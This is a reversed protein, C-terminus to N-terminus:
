YSEERIVYQQFAQMPSGCTDHKQHHGACDLLCSMSQLAGPFRAIHLDGAIGAMIRAARERIEREDLTWSTPRSLMTLLNQISHRSSLMHRRVSRTKKVVFTDLMRVGTLHDDHYGSELLINACKSTTEQLYGTPRMGHVSEMVKVMVLRRLLFWSYFGVGHILALSYFAFLAAKLKGKGADDSSYYDLQILRMVSIVISVMPGFM